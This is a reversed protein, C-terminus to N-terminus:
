KKCCCLCSVVGTILNKIMRLCSGDAAWDAFTACVAGMVTGSFIFVWFGWLFHGETIDMVEEVQALNQAEETLIDTFEQDRIITVVSICFSWTVISLAVEVWYCIMAIMDISGGCCGCTVCQTCFAVGVMIATGIVIFLCLM